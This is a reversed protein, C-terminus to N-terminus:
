EVPKPVEREVDWGDGITDEKVKFGGAYTWIKDGYEEGETAAGFAADIAQKVEGRATPDKKAYPLKLRYSKVKGADDFSLNVWMDSTMSDEFFPPALELRVTMTNPALKAIDANGAMKAAGELNAKGEEASQVYLIDAYSKTLTAMDAGLIPADTKEFAVNGKGLLGEIPTYRTLEITGEAKDGFTSEDYKARLGTKPNAWVWTESSGGIDRGKGWAKEIDARVSRLFRVSVKMLEGKQFYGQVSGDSFEKGYDLYRSDKPDKKKSRADEVFMGAPQAALDAGLKATTLDGWLTPGAGLIDALPLPAQAPKEAGEGKAVEGPAGPKGPDAAKGGCASTALAAVILGHKLHAAMGIQFFRSAIRSM